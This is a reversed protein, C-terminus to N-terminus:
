YANVYAYKAVKDVIERPVFVVFSSDLDRSHFVKEFLTTGEFWQCLVMYRWIQKVCMPRGKYAVLSGVKMFNQCLTLPDFGRRDKSCPRLKAFQCM